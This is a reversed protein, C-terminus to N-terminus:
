NPISKRLDRKESVPYLHYTGWFEDLDFKEYVQQSYVEKRAKQDDFGRYQLTQLCAKCVPVKKGLGKLSTGIRVTDETIRLSNCSALHYSHEGELWIRTNKYVLTFDLLHHLVSPSVTLGINDLDSREIGTLHYKPDFLEFYGL